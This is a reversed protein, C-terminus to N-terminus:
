GPRAASYTPPSCRERTKSYRPPARAPADSYRLLSDRCFVTADARGPVAAESHTSPSEPLGCSGVPQGQLGEELSRFMREQGAEWSSCCGAPPDMTMPAPLRACSEAMTLGM